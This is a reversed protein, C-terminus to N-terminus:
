YKFNTQSITIRIGTKNVIKEEIYDYICDKVEEIVEWGYESDGIADVLDHMGGQTMILDVTADELNVTIDIYFEDYDEDSIKLEFEFEYGGCDGRKIKHSGSILERAMEKAKEVGLYESLMPLVNLKSLGLEKLPFLKLFSDDVVPKRDWYKHFFKKYTEIRKLRESQDETIIVKM